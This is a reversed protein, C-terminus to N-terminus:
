TRGYRSGDALRIQITTTPKSEDVKLTSSGSSAATATPTNVVHPAPSFYLSCSHVWDDMMM